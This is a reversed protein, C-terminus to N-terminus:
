LVNRQHPRTDGADPKGPGPRPQAGGAGGGGFLPLVNQGQMINGATQRYLASLEPPIQPSVTTTGKGM